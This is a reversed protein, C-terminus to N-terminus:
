AGAKEQVDNTANPLMTYGQTRAQMDHMGLAQALACSQQLQGEASALAQGLQADAEREQQLLQVIEAVDEAQM